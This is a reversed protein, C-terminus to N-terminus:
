IAITKNIRQQDGLSDRNNQISQDGLNHCPNKSVGKEQLSGTSPKIMRLIAGEAGQCLAKQTNGQM